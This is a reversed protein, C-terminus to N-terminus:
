VGEVYYQVAERHVASKQIAVQPFQARLYAIIEQCVPDETPFHGADILNVGKAGADVFQHYSLDATVYTDCGAAIAADQFEGCAGGGVGVRHVRRGADAYRVGNCELRRCVHRVFDPLSMPADLVGVRVVGPNELRFVDRLSLREALTDNVGGEAIDLNTHMCIASLNSEILPLLIRGTVDQDTLRKQGHFIVPHHAVILDAGWRNAEEIVAGTIDLSVLIKRVERGPKGVLLGVNDWDMACERPAIKYLAAEIEGVRPM